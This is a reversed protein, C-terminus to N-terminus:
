ANPPPGDPHGVWVMDIGHQPCNVECAHCGCCQDSDVKAKLRKSKLARVMEIAGYLCHEVCDQCGDCLEHDITAERM